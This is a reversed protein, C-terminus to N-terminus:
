QFIVKKHRLSHTASLLPFILIIIIFSLHVSACQKHRTLSLLIATLTLKIICAYAYHDTLFFIPFLLRLIIIINDGDQQYIAHQQNADFLMIM